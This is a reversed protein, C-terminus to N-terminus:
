KGWSESRILYVNVVRALEEPLTPVEKLLQDMKRKLEENELWFDHKIKLVNSLLDGPYYIGEVLLDEKLYELAIPILYELSINQGILLRLDNVTFEKLPKKRLKHCRIVLSSHFEPEGWDNGELETLTKKRDFSDKM